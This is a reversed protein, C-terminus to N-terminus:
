ALYGTHPRNCTQVRNLVDATETAHGGVGTSSGSPDGYDRNRRKGRCLQYRNDGCSQLGSDTRKHSASLVDSM